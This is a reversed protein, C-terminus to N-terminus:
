TPPMKDFKPLTPDLHDWAQGSASWSIMQPRYKAPDDLSGARVVFYDPIDRFTM